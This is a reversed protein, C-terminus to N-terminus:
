TSTSDTIFEHIAENNLVPEIYTKLFQITAYSSNGTLNKIEENFPNKQPDLGIEPDNMVDEALTHMKNGQLRSLATKSHKMLRQHIEERDKGNKCASMLARELSLFPAYNKLQNSIAEEDIELRNTLEVALNIISDASLFAEPLVIRRNASDDLSRELWQNAATQHANNELNILYRAISCIREAQIPNRKYPMASSGVQDERHPEFIEKTHSLLRVDTAMKHLSTGIRALISLIRCDQLRTYTQTSLPFVAEFGMSTAVARECADVKEQDQDFLALFSDQTGTAGKVGLFPFDLLLTHLDNFCLYVDFLWTSIRKGVTIPQAPQFHTYALCPTSAYERAKSYLARMLHKLKGRLITLAEKMQILDGNDMVYSSTAGLHIVGRALPAVESFAHIHAIVEHRFKKEFLAIQDFDINLVQKKMQEIAELPIDIGASRMASALAIWLRRWTAYKYQSSFIKSMAESRYRTTFPSEFIEENMM